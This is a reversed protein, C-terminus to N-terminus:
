GQCGTRSLAVAPQTLRRRAQRRYTRSVGGLMRKNLVSVQLPRFRWLGSGYWNKEMMQLGVARAINNVGGAAQLSVGAIGAMRWIRPDMPNLAVTILIGGPVLVRAIDALIRRRARWELGLYRWVVVDVGRSIFPLTELSCVLPMQWSSSAAQMVIANSIGAVPIELWTLEVVTRNETDPLYATIVAQEAALISRGLATATWLRAPPSQKDRRLRNQKALWKSLM